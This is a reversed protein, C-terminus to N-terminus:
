TLRRSVDIRGIGSSPRRPAKVVPGRARARRRARGGDLRHLRGGSPRREPVGDRAARGRRARFAPRRRLLRHHTEDSRGQGHLLAVDPRALVRADRTARPDIRSHLRAQATRPRRPHGPGPGRGPGDRGRGARGDPERDAGESRRGDARRVEEAEVHYTGGVADDCRRPAHEGLLRTLSAVRRRPRYPVPDVIVEVGTAARGPAVTMLGLGLRRCLDRVNRRHVSARRARRSRPRCVALYVRDTLTLRDVGQLLLALSFSLKLEVIVPPGDGRTAVVDCGRVEAKVSYGQGELFAKVAPYLDSEAPPIPTRPM